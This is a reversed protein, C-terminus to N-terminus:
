FVAHFFWTHLRRPRVCEIAWSQSVAMVFQIPGVFYGLFKLLLNEKQEKMQNLGFLKRRQLVEVDTLGSKVDTQLFEEAVIKSGTVEGETEEEIVDGCDSELDDILAALEEVEANKLAVPQKEADEMLAPYIEDQEPGRPGDFQGSPVTTGLHNPPTADSSTISAIEDRHGGLQDTM